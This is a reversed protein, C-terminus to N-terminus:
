KQRTYVPIYIKISKNGIIFSTILTITIEIESSQSLIKPSGVLNPRPNKETANSINKM